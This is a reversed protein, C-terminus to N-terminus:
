SVYIQSGRVWKAKPEYKSKDMRLKVTEHFYPHKDRIKRGRGFNVSFTSDVNREIRSLCEPIVFRIKRHWVADEDQWAHGLPIIELLWWLLKMPSKLEHKLEDNTDQVADEADKEVEIESGTSTTVSGTPSKADTDENRPVVAPIGAHELAHEDFLIGCNAQQIQRVMWRLSINSLSHPESDLVAGGGVDSHCGSFWVELVDTDPACTDEPEPKERLSRKRFLKTVGRLSASLGNTPTVSGNVPTDHENESTGAAETHHECRHYLNPRFKARHEDLSLAHRFTRIAKNSGTFPLSPGTLLGASAVTDWVGVFEIKVDQCFTRKFESCVKVDEDDVSKYHKYAFPVQQKNDRSLLGAKYLMGALAKAPSIIEGFICIKDGDRYNQMVFKYGELVHAELYWAFAGDLVRAGWRFFPSVVGPNFWTGIGPQKIFTLIRSQCLVCTALFKVVNTNDGDFENMTGDFCVIITRGSKTVEGTDAM